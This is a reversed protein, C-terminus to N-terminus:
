ILNYQELKEIEKEIREIEKKLVVSSIDNQVLALDSELEKILVKFLHIDWKIDSFFKELKALAEKQNKIECVVKDKVKLQKIERRFGHYISIRAVVEGSEIHTIEWRGAERADASSEVKFM